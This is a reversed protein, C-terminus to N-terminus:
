RVDAACRFGVDIHATNGPRKNRVSTHAMYSYYFSGGRFVRPADPTPAGEHDRGEGSYVSDVWAAVSGGLDHIGGPTVDQRSSSVDALSATEACGPLPLYGDNPILVEGCRPPSSGWPFTRDDAGRAAAEWENETPLRKGQARCYFRAGFWTVQNAPWRERTPRARFTGQEVYEIGSFTPALDILFTEAPGLGADLRVYRPLRDDEDIEVHLSGKAGNLVDVLEQNTVERVDLFFPAVLVTTSPVQYSLVNLRCSPGLAACQKAVVGAPQGVTLREEDILAMGAPPPRGLTRRRAVERAVRPALALATGVLAVATGLGWFLRRRREQTAPSPNMGRLAKVVAEGDAFRNVRDRALMRATIKALEPPFRRWASVGLQAVPEGVARLLAPMTAGKFPREETVLECAIVGLAFVDARTDVREGSYQEPAMYGPTGKFASLGHREQGACRDAGVPERDPVVHGALGFDVLKLGGPLTLMVNEPKLDRHVVGSAHLVALGEAIQTVVAIIESATHVTDM